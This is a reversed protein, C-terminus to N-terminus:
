QGKGRGAGHGAWEPMGQADRLVLVADGKKVQRAVLSDTNGMHMPSGTVEVQDGKAFTFNEDKLFWAPGLMVTVTNDATKVTLHVGMMMMMGQGAPGRTGTQVDEVTGQITTEKTVDYNPMMMKGKQMHQASALGCTALAAAALIAPLKVISM